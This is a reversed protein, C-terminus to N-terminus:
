GLYQLAMRLRDELTTPADKPLRQLATQAEVISYGLATLAAIIETDVTDPPTGSSGLTPLAPGLKDKLQFIIKEAMKPGVGPVRTLLEPQNGTVASRLVDPSLASLLTLALRPGIGSVSILIEFITREEETLFGYLTLAPDRETILHLHTYLFIPEGPGPGREIVSLPVRVHLGVGGVEVILHDTAQHQLTGRLTAIM